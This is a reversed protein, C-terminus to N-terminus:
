IGRGTPGCLDIGDQPDRGPFERPGDGRKDSKHMRVVKSVDDLYHRLRHGTSLGIPDGIPKKLVIPIYDEHPLIGDYVAILVALGNPEDAVEPVDRSLHM